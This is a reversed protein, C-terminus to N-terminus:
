VGKQNEIYQQVVDLTIAGVSTISKSRTWLTPIRKKLWPYEERLTHSTARKIRAVVTNVGNSPDIELLPHVYDPHVAIDMVAYGYNEQKELVVDRLRETVAGTLVKCRFKPFFIVHYQCSFVVSHGTHNPKNTQRMQVYSLHYIAVSLISCCTHVILM